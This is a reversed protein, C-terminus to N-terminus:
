SAGGSYEQDSMCSHIRRMRRRGFMEWRPPGAAGDVNPAGRGAAIDADWVTRTDLSFRSRGSADTMGAHLHAASFALIEGPEILVPVPQDAPQREAEPLLPYNKEIGSILRDYDWQGSTNPVPTRFADPWIVMTRTPALEYLPMWWNVQCMINSGWSDRHAPLPRAFRSQADPRSPAIRLRVRDSRVETLPYGLATLVSQWLAAMGEDGAVAKRARMSAARFDDASMRREATEPEPGFQGQVIARARAALASVAAPAFTLLDGAFLARSLEEAGFSGSGKQIVPANM